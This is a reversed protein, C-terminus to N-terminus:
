FKSQRKNGPMYKGTRRTPASFSSTVRLSTSIDNQVSRFSRLCETDRNGEDDIQTGATARPNARQRRKQRLVDGIRARDQLGGKSRCPKASTGDEIM